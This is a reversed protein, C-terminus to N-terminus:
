LTRAAVVVATTTSPGQSTAAIGVLLDARGPSARCEAQRDVADTRNVPQFRVCVLGDPGRLPQAKWAAGGQTSSAITTTGGLTHLYRKPDLIRFGACTSPELVGRATSSGAGRPTRGFIRVVEGPEPTFPGASAGIGALGQRFGTAVRVVRPGHGKLYRVVQLRAPSLVDGTVGLRPGSLVIGDFTVDSAATAARSTACTAAGAASPALAVLAASAAVLAALLRKYRKRM